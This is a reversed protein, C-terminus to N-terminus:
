AFDIGKLNLRYLDRDILVGTEIIQTCITYRVNARDGGDQVRYNTRMCRLPYNNM